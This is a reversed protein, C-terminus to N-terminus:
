GSKRNHKVPKRQSRFFSRLMSIKQCMEHVKQRSGPSRREGSLGIERERDGLDGRKKLLEPVIRPQIMRFAKTLTPASDARAAPIVEEIPILLKLATARTRSASV